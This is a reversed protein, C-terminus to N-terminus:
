GLHFRGAVSTVSSGGVLVQYSGSPTVWASSGEDWYHLVELDRLDDQTLTIDVDRYQGPQLTVHEWGVLREFPERAASPLKVYARAVETGARSGPNTLRFRIHVEGGTVRM